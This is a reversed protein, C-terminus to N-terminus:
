TQQAATAVDSSSWTWSFPVLTPKERTSAPQPQQKGSQWGVCWGCWLVEKDDFTSHKSRHQAPTCGVRVGKVECAEYWDLTIISAAPVGWKRPFLDLNLPVVFQADPFRAAVAKISHKDMHDYHNHSLTVIHIPPLQAATAASPFRLSLEVFSLPSARQSFAPDFLISVGNTLCLLQSSHGIWYVKNKVSQAEDNSMSARWHTVSEVM